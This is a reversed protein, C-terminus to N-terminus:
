TGKGKDKLKSWYRSLLTAATLFASSDVSELVGYVEKSLMKGRRKKWDERLDFNESAFVATVLDFVDLTVGGTNVKEFVQCVAVKQTEKSLQIIPSRYSEVPKIVSSRFRDLSKVTEKDYNYYERCSEMWGDLGGSFVKNLPFMKTAFELEPTSLDLVVATDFDRKILRDEPVAKVAESLSNPNSLAQDIDIYYFRKILRGRNGITATAEQSYLANYLSTLRQQGDLVLNKPKSDPATGVFHRYKFNITEPAYELFMMAGMPYSQAVSAILERIRDNDWVWGRQFDPLQLDGRNIDKLIESLEIDRTYFNPM